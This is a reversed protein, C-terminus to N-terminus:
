RSGELLMSSSMGPIVSIVRSDWWISFVSLSMDCNSVGSLANTCRSFNGVISASIPTSSRVRFGQLKGDVFKKLFVDTVQCFSAM